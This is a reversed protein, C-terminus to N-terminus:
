YIQSFGQGWLVNNFRQKMNPDNRNKCLLDKMANVVIIQTMRINKRVPNGFFRIPQMRKMMSLAQFFAVLEDASMKNIKFAFNTLTELLLVNNKNDKSIEVFFDENM